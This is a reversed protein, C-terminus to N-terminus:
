CADFLAGLGSLMYGKEALMFLAGYGSLMYGKEAHISYHEMVLCCIDKRLM